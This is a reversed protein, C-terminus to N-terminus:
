FRSSGRGDVEGGALVRGKADAWTGAAMEAVVEGTFPALSPSMAGGRFDVWEGGIFHRRAAARARSSQRLEM